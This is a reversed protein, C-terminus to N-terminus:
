KSITKQLPPNQGSDQQQPPNTETTNNGKLAKKIMVEIDSLLILFGIVNNLQIDTDISVNLGFQHLSNNLGTQLKQTMQAKEDPSIKQPLEFQIKIGKKTPNKNVDIKLLSKM